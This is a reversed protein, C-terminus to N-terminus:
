PELGAYRRDYRILPGDGPRVRAAHVAAIVVAHSGGPRVETVTCSLQVLAGEILPAGEATFPDPGVPLPDAFVTALRRQSAPLISVGFPAGAALYPRVTANPALALLVLPPEVSLSMFASVTTAVVRQEDRFAVISVGAAWHALADKFIDPDIACDEAITRQYLLM